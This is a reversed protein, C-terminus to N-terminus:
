AEGGCDTSSNCNDTWFCCNDCCFDKEEVSEKCCDRWWLAGARGSASEAPSAVLIPLMLLNAALAAGIWIRANRM